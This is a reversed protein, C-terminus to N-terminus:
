RKEGPVLEFCIVRHNGTAGEPALMWWSKNNTFEATRPKDSIAKFEGSERHVLILSSAHEAKVVVGSKDLSFQALASTSSDLMDLSSLPSWQGAQIALRGVVLPKSSATMVIGSPKPKNTEDLPLIARGSDRLYINALAFTPRPEDCWPCRKRNCFYTSSCEPCLLTLNAAEHLKEAWASAGPRMLRNRASLDFCRNALERLGTSMVMERPIGKSSRNSEDTPHDIWPLEGIHARVELEPGGNEVYDGRLPHTAALTQFIIVALSWGDTLSDAGHKTCLLEPAAFGLTYVARPNVGQYINDCDILWVETDVPNESIYVNSPSLDGYSCGRGHLESLLSALKACVRLRRRLGGTSLYWSSLDMRFQRPVDTIVSIPRMGTMLEMVYGAHPESLMQVPRAIHLDSLPLRRVRAVNQRIRERIERNANPMLKVALGAGKVSFVSGQGGEGLLRDLLYVHRNMDAVSEPFRSSM